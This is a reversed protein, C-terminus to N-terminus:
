NVFWEKKKKKKKIAIKWAHWKKYIYYNDKFLPNIEEFIRNINIKNNIYLIAFSPQIKKIGFENYIDVDFTNNANKNLFNKLIPLIILDATINKEKIFLYKDNFKSIIEENVNIKRVNNCLILNSIINKWSHKQFISTLLM